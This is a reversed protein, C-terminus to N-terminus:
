KEGFNVRLSIPAYPELPATLTKGSSGLKDEDMEVLNCKTAVSASKPLTM